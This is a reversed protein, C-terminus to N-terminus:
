FYKYVYRQDFNHDASTVHQEVDGCIQVLFILLKLGLCKFIYYSDYVFYKDM